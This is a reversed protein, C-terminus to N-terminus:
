LHSVSWHFSPVTQTVRGSTAPGTHVAMGEAWHPLLSSSDPTPGSTSSILLQDQFTGGSSNELYTSLPLCVDPGLTCQNGTITRPLQYGMSCEIAAVLIVPCGPSILRKWSGPSSQTRSLGSTLWAGKLALSSVKNRAFWPRLVGVWQPQLAHPQSFSKPPQTNPLPVTNALSPM